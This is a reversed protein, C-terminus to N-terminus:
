SLMVDGLNMLTTTQDATWKKKIALYYEIKHVYFIAHIHSSKNPQGQLRTALNPVSRKLLRSDTGPCPGIGGTLPWATAAAWLCFLPLSACTLEPRIMRLGFFSSQCCINAWPSYEEAFVFRVESWATKHKLFKGKPSQKGVFEERWPSSITQNTDLSPRIMLTPHPSLVHFQLDWSM